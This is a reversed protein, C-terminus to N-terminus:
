DFPFDISLKVMFYNKGHPVSTGSVLEHSQIQDFVVAELFCDPSTILNTTVAELFVVRKDSITKM